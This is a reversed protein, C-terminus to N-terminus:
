KLGMLGSPRGTTVPVPVYPVEGKAISEKWTRAKEIYPLLFEVVKDGHLDEIPLQEFLVISNAQESFAFTGSRPYALGNAALAAKFINERFRGFPLTGLNSCLTLSKESKDMQFYVEVGNAFRLLCTNNKPETITIKLVEGMEKLISDFLGTVM